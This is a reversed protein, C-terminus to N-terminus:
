FIFLSVIAAVQNNLLEHVKESKLMVVVVVNSSPTQRKDYWVAM